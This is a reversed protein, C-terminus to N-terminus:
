VEFLEIEDEDLLKKIAYNAKVDHGGEFVVIKVNDFSKYFHVEKNGIKGVTNKGRRKELLYIIDEQSVEEQGFEDALKNYFNITHTIPVEGTYGDHIGTYLKLKTHLLKEKPIKNYMPSRKHAEKLNLEDKSNTCALIDKYYHNGRGLSEYYWDELDTIPVWAMYTNVKHESKLFHMLAAHGGGSVGLVFVKDKDVNGHKIAYDIADDIDKIVIDSGCADPNNNPGQFNPHIYNLDHQAAVFSIPDNNRYDSGWNHLRVILPQNDKNSKRFYANQEGIVVKNLSQHRRREFSVVHKIRRRFRNVNSRM